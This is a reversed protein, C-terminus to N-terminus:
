KNLKWNTEFITETESRTLVIQNMSRVSVKRGQTKTCDTREAYGM